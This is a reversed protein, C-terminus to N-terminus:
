WCAMRRTGEHGTVLATYLRKSWGKLTPSYILLPQNVKFKRLMVSCRCQRGFSNIRIRLSHLAKQAKISVNAFQSLHWLLVIDACIAFVSAFTTVPMSHHSIVNHRTEPSSTCKPM